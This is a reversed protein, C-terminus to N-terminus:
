VLLASVFRILTLEAFRWRAVEQMEAKDLGAVFKQM